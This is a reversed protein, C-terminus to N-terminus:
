PRSQRLPLYIGSNNIAEATSMSKMAALHGRTTERRSPLGRVFEFGARLRGLDAYPNAFYESIVAAASVPDRPDFYYPANGSIETIFNLDSAFVPLGLAMGELPTVSSTENLSPFFVGDSKCYQDYCEARSLAGVPVIGPADHLGLSTLEDSRLTCVVELEVNYASRLVEVVRPIIQHNKHPYGRAPYFLRIIRRGSELAPTREIRPMVDQARFIDAPSNPFVWVPKGPVRASLEEAMNSTQTLFADYRPLLARKLANRASAKIRRAAPQHQPVPTLISRDAFGLIERKAMRGVYDPGRLVLRVDAWANRRRQLTRLDAADTRQVISVGLDRLDDLRSMESAIEDSIYVYWERAWCMHTTEYFDPLTDLLNAAGGIAGGTRINSAYIIAKM